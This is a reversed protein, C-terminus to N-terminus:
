LANGSFQEILHCVMDGTPARDPKRDWDVIASKMRDRLALMDMFRSEVEELRQEILRRAVPCPSKGRDAEELIHAIDAVSFGLQRASLIFRLRKRDIESYEKYGNRACREPHLFGERTYFRVTDATVDLSNALQNVRMRM